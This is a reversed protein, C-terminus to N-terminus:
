VRKLMRAALDPEAKIKGKGHCTPCDKMATHGEPIHNAAAGPKRTRLFAQRSM